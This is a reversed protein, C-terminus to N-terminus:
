SFVKGFNKRYYSFQTKSQGARLSIALEAICLDSFSEKGFVKKVGNKYKIYRLVHYWYHLTFHGWCDKSPLIKCRVASIKATSIKKQAVLELLKKGNINPREKVQTPLIGDNVVARRFLSSNRTYLIYDCVTARYLRKDFEARFINVHSSIDKAKIKTVKRFLSEVVKRNFLVDNEWAYGYTMLVKPHLVTRKKDLIHDFDRDRAIVVPLKLNLLLQDAYDNIAGKGGCPYFHAKTKPLFILFKNEWFKRDNQSLSDPHTETLVVVDVSLLITLKALDSIGQEKL